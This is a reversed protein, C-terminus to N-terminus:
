QPQEANLPLGFKHAKIIDDFSMPQVTIQAQSLYWEVIQSEMLDTRVRDVLKPESRMWHQAAAQVDAVGQLSAYEALKALVM